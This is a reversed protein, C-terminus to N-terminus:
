KFLTDKKGKTDLGFDELATRLEDVTSKKSPKPSPTSAETSGQNVSSGGEEVREKANGDDAAAKVM